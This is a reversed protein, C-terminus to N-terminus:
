KPVLRGVARLAEENWGGEGGVDRASGERGCM